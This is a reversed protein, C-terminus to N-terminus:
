QLLVPLLKPFLLLFVLVLVAVTLISLCLPLFHFVLDIECVDSFWETPENSRKWYRFSNTPKDSLWGCVSVSVCIPLAELLPNPDTQTQCIFTSLSSHSRTQLLSALVGCKYAAKALAANQCKSTLHM